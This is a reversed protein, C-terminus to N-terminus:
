SFARFFCVHGIFRRLPFVVDVGERSKSGLVRGDKEWGSKSKRSRKRERRRKIFKLSDCSTALPPYSDIPSATTLNSFERSVLIPPPPLPPPINLNPSRGGRHFSRDKILQIFSRSNELLNRVRRPKKM